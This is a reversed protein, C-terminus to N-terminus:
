RRVEKKFEYNKPVLLPMRKHIKEVGARAATTILRLKGGNLQAMLVGTVGKTNFDALEYPKRGVTNRESFGTINVTHINSVKNQWYDWSEKRIYGNFMGKVEQGMNNLFTLNEGDKLVM